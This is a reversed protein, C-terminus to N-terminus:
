MTGTFEMAASGGTADTQEPQQTRRFCELTLAAMFCPISDREGIWFRILENLRPDEGDGAGLLKMTTSGSNSSANNIQFTIAATLDYTSTLRIKTPQFFLTYGLISSVTQRFEETKATFVQKLRLLRKEKDAVTRILEDKERKVNEWSGRPVLRDNPETFGKSSEVDSLRMLLADNEEKLRQFTKKKLDVDESIPNTALQLVRTGPPVHNGANITAGLEWLQQELTDVKEQTADLSELCGALEEELESIRELQRDLVDQNVKASSKDDVPEARKKEVERQLEQELNECETQIAHVTEELQAIRAVKEEEHPNREVGGDSLLVSKEEADYTSLIARLGRVEREALALRRDRRTSREEEDRLKDELNRVHAIHQTLDAEVTTLETERLTLLSTLSGNKELLDANALRFSSLAHTFPTPTHHTPEANPNELFAAWDEREKRAAEVEGQLRALQEAQESAKQLKLELTRKEERLVEVSTQRARLSTVESTLRSNVLELNKWHAAQRHMEERVVNWDETEGGRRSSEHQMELDDVQQRLTQNAQKHQQLLERTRDLEDQLLSGKRELTSVSVKQSAITSASTRQIESYEDELDAHSARLASYSTKLTRLQREMATKEAAWEASVREREEREEKERDALWRRDNELREIKVDREKLATELDRKADEAALLRREFSKAAMRSSFLDAKQNRKAASLNPDQDLQAALSNRKSPGSEPTANRPSYYGDEMSLYKTDIASGLITSNPNLEWEAVFLGILGRTRFAYEKGM